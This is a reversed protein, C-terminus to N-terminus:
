VRRVVFRITWREVEGGGELSDLVKELEAEVLWKTGTKEGIADWLRQLSAVDHHYRGGEEGPVERGVQRGVVMAGEGGERFFRVLRCGLRVQEEWGFLHFFSAAHVIDVTGELGELGEGTFVDGTWVGGGFGERDGFMEYGLEIFEARLDFGKLNGQPAGDYALQRLVQGVCCAADLFVAGAKIRALLSPYIPLTTIYLDLFRWRGLCPYSYIAFARDRIARLHPEIQDPPIHSYHQLLNFAKSIHHQPPLAHQYRVPSPPKLDAM